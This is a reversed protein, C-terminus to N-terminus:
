QSSWKAITISTSYVMAVAGVVMMLIDGAQEWRTTAVGKLHLWPPYIYVLPVCAFAGILAVFKDLDSAGLIAILACAVSLATRLTNKKWKTATSRKGSREGFLTTEAIRVPPFLQVPTGILVALSYLFQMANVLKSSRPFNTIIEVHTTEGYTAYCLAGVSTFIITIILMVLYLLREFKHPQAMSAQIPLILGIGEFTFIASGLTLTFDQPNFLRVTPHIGHNSLGSITNSYIYILGLLIFVDALLAAPGLKSIKRIFALPIIIVLQLAILANTSMHTPKDTVSELFYYLNEATFIMGACVFGIQSIFISALVLQRFRPGGIADGIEGYGGGYQKRCTLLLHFCICSVLSVIVLTISSFLIGGNRFAKPLFMIGTGIFAKLLTFFTKTMNADGKRSMRASSMRHRLSPRNRRETPSRGRDDEGDDILAQEEEADMAEEEEDLEELDEGAFSGYLDLFSVFSDTVPKAVTYLSNSRQLIYQRRFGGPVQQDTPTISEPDPRQSDFYGVTASRKHMKARAQIKYIDRHIDGGLLHLSSQQDDDDTTGYNNNRNGTGNSSSASVAEPGASYGPPLHRSVVEAQALSESDAGRPSDM